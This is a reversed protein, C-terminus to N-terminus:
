NLKSGCWPCYSISIGSSGGDHIMLVYDKTSRHYDVLMDPCDKRLPHIDCIAELNNQMMPCCEKTQAM